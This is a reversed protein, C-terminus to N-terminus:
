ITHVLIGLLIYLLHQHSCWNIRLCFTLQDPPSHMFFKITRSLKRHYGFKTETKPLAAHVTFM